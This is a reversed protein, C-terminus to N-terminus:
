LAESLPGMRRISVQTAAMYGGGRRICPPGSKSESCASWLPKAFLCWHGASRAWYQITNCHPPTEKLGSAAATTTHACEGARHQGMSRGCVYM